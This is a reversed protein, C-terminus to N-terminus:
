PQIEVKANKWEQTLENSLSRIIVPEEIRSFMFGRSGLHEISAGLHYFDTDDVIIFRDHFASSLRIELQGYQKNFEAAKVKLPPKVREALVEVKAKQNKACLLDLTKENFYRDIIVIKKQVNSIIDGVWRIADYYQGAFFLGERTAKVPSEGFIQAELFTNICYKLDMLLIELAEREIYGRGQFDATQSPKVERIPLDEFYTPYEKRLQMSISAFRTFLDMVNKADFNNARGGYFVNLWDSVNRELATLKTVSENKM